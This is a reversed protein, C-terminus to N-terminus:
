DVFFRRVVMTGLTLAAFGVGNQLIFDLGARLYSGNKILESFDFMYTSFTTFAGFFGTLVFLKTDLDWHTRAMFLTAIAGFCFCGIINIIATGWPAGKGFISTFYVTLAYRSLSGLGGAVFLACLQKFM